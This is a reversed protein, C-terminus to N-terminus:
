LISFIENLAKTNSYQVNNLMVCYTLVILTITLSVTVYIASFINGKEIKRNHIIMFSSLTSIVNQIQLQYSCTKHENFGNALLAIIKSMTCCCGFFWNNDRSICPGLKLHSSSFLMITTLSSIQMTEIKQKHFARVISSLSLSKILNTKFIIKDQDGM